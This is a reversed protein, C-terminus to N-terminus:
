TFVKKKRRSNWLELLEAKDESGDYAHIPPQGENASQPLEVNLSAPLEQFRIGRLRFLAQGVEFRRPRYIVGGVVSQSNPQQQQQQRPTDSAEHCSANRQQCCLTRQVGKKDMEHDLLALLDRLSMEPHQRSAELVWLAALGCGVLQPRKGMLQECRSMDIMCREDDDNNDNEDPPEDPPMTTADAKRTNKEDCDTSAVARAKTTAGFFLNMGGGDLWLGGNITTTTGLQDLFMHVSETTPRRPVPTHQEKNWELRHAVGRGAYQVHGHSFQRSISKAKATADHCMYNQMLIVNHAVDLWDGIGGVVVISSIKHTQFLGNVRYLLPTISEDMVLARMRGDRAMFNAASVDEDILFASSQLEIAEMVNAAQSTSGSAEGTSFHRTDRFPAPEESNAIDSSGSSSGGVGDGVLPNPLNSLFANVNCNNVYRGDEARITAARDVTVCFERGDGPM